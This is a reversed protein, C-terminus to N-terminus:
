ALVAAGSMVSIWQGGSGSVVLVGTGGGGTEGSKRGNTAYALAGITASPLATVTYTPLGITGGGVSLGGSILANGMAVLTGSSITLGVIPGTLTGGTLSLATAVQSDVYQKTAAQMMGSPNGVLLLTGGLTGGALPLSTAVQDDVYQKPAAQLSSSPNAALALAGTMTGGATSLSKAFQGDTYEKTTAGLGLVPDASLILLGTMTDGSRVVRADVYDSAYTSKASGPPMLVILRTNAGTSIDELERILVLHHAAPEQDLPGLACKTWEALSDRIIGRLPMEHTAGLVDPPASSM